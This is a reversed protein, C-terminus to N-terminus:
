DTIVRVKEKKYFKGLMFPLYRNIIEIIPIELIVVAFLVLIGTLYTYRGRTVINILRELLIQHTAMVILSNKGLYDLINSQKIKKLLYIISISGMISCITYLFINNFQLSWLDVFGNVYSLILNLLFLIAISLYNISKNILLDYGYYGIYLFGNAIFCRFLVLLNHNETSITLPIIFLIFTIITIIKNSKIYKIMLIFLIESVFLAFLFWTAGVKCYMLVSDVINWRLASLTFENQVMWIFIAVLEFCIYPIILSKFKSTIINKFDRQKIDTHKILIGSIIFFLPMHFSHLWVRIPNSEDYIHGLIVLLIGFGKISDLYKIREMDGM